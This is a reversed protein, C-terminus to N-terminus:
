FHLFSSTMALFFFNESLAKLGQAELRTDRGSGMGAVLNWNPDGRQLNCGLRCPLGKEVPHM